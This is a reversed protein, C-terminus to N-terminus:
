GSPAIHAERDLVKKTVAEGFACFVGLHLSQMAGEAGDDNSLLTHM